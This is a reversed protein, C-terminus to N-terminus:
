PLIFNEVEDEWVITLNYGREKFWMERLLDRDVTSLIVKDRPSPSFLLEERTKGRGHWYSGNLNVYTDTEPIYFDMVWRGVPVQRQVKPYKLLLIEYLRNEPKSTTWSRNHRMTERRKVMSEDSNCAQRTKLLKLPNDVGHNRVMSEKWAQRHLKLNVGIARRFEVRKSHHSVGFKRKSTQASVSKFSESQFVFDTGYREQCTSRMKSKVVESQAPNRCGYKKVNTDETKAKIVSSRQPHDVGYKEVWTGKIKQKISESAFVNSSGHREINTRERLKAACEKTCTRCSKQHHSGCWDCVKYTCNKCIAERSAHGEIITFRFKEDCRTCQRLEWVLKPADKSRAMGDEM